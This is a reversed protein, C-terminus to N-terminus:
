TSSCTRWSRTTTGPTTSASRTPGDSSGTDPDRAMIACSWKNAGPRADPNWPGPNGTGYFFLKTEPDYTLWGWVTAGGIKWQDPGWSSVGLDTGRDKEYFAKFSAGIKVDADPGTNYARWVEKGTKVDLAVVYGRVGLEGGSNGIIVKGNVALPAGTLTEGYNIDGVRTRWVEHGDAADVAVVHADLLSYIIKGDAFTPGRNVVDCCAIGMARRDPRPEFTWKLAGGPKTLDVAILNNPYPTVVYMTNNVILPQGEHGRAIGTSLTTFVKMQGVNETTIGDLPSYRLGAYDGMPM